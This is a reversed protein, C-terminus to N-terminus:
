LLGEKILIDKLTQIDEKTWEVYQDYQEKNGKSHLIAAPHIMPFVRTPIEAWGGVLANYLKGRYETMKFHKSVGLINSTAIAGITVVLKPKLLRMEMDLYSQCREIQTSKPTLNEKGSGKEAVPRCKVVNTIYWDETDMEVSKWIRDMLQGAPGTFPKRRSDEEKGPAEGVIVKSATLSGRSVCCGNINPQFGLSCMKCGNINLFRNLGGVSPFTPIEEPKTVPSAM